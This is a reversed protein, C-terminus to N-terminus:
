NFFSMIKLIAADLVGTGNELLYGNTETHSYFSALDNANDDNIMEARHCAGCARAAPGTVYAKYTGIEREKGTITASGSLLGPLSRAQDPVGYTGQNHCSECNLTTFNPYTSDIHEEYELAAVPKSFDVKAIDFAQFTHIAHVYSDISRSQMELHSGGSLGVHCLRCALVGASGYTPSHFTMGLADHCNNCKGADVINRGYAKEDDDALIANHILDFTKTVGKIALYPNYAAKSSDNQPAATQNVGLAPLIGIEARRIPGQDVIKDAWSSLDATAVFSTSTDGQAVTLRPGNSSSGTTWELTRKGDASTGHGTVIFDKSEYGYLSIVMTPYVIANAAAGGVSFKVTLQKSTSDFKADDIKAQISSAYKTTANSYILKDYGTHIQAFTKALGGAQSHCLNCQVNGAYLDMSGHINSPLITALAPARKDSTGGVGTVPHCSKCTTLTFHADDLIMGLKGAHCTVCNAMSQPYAFEFAHSNHVDNMVNAVYKYKLLETTDAFDGGQAAYKAVDDVLLYWQGDSGRRQDTHCAKCAVFDPIALTNYTTDTLDYVRAQRYGHKAYPKGHCNECAEVNAASTYGIAGKVVKAVSIMNDMFTYRRGPKNPPFGALSNDGFYGYVFANANAVLPDASLGDKVMTCQGGNDTTCALSGYQFNTPSAPDVGPDEGTPDTALDALYPATPFTNTAADYAVFYLTKQKLTPTSTYAVGGRLLKFTAVSKFTGDTNSVTTVTLGSVSLKSTKPSLGDNFSNYLAQHETGAGGHCIECSEPQAVATLNQGDQGDAGTAGTDGKAGPAGAAGTDGKDGKAGQDGSCAALALVAFLALAPHKTLQM